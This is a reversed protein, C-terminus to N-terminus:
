TTIKAVYSKIEFSMYDREDNFYGGLDSWNLVYEKQFKQDIYWSKDTDMEAITHVEGNLLGLICEDYVRIEDFPGIESSTYYAAKYGYDPVYVDTDTCFTITEKM